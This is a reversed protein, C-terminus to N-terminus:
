QIMIDKEKTLLKPFRKTIMEGIIVASDKYNLTSTNIVLHYLLPDEINKHFNDHIFNRRAQDEKKILYYAEDKNINFLEQIHRVRDEMFGILRVHFTNPLKASIINAARGIIIVYGLQALRLITESAQRIMLWKPPHIGLLENITSKMESIKDEVLYESLKKPLNHDDLIKEIINRDFITWPLTHQQTRSKFFEILHESVKDAGAGTERSITICPGPILEEKSKSHTEIYIRAKEYAGKVIM